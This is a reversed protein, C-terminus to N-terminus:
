GLVVENIVYPMHSWNTRMYVVVEGKSEAAHMVRVVDLVEWHRKITPLEYDDRANTLYRISDVAEEDWAVAVYLRKSM